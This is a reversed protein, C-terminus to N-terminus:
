AIVLNKTSLCLIVFVERPEDDLTLDLAASV